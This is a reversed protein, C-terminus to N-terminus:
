YLAFRFSHGALTHLSRVSASCLAYDQLDHPSYRWSAMFRGVPEMRTTASPSASVKDERCTLHTKAM